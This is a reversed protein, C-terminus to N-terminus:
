DTMVFNIIGLLGKWTSFFADPTKPQQGDDAGVAEKPKPDDAGVAEMMDKNLFLRLCHYTTM